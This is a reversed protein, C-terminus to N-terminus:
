NFIIFISNVDDTNRKCNQNIFTQLIFDSLLFVIQKQVSAVSLHENFKSPFHYAM